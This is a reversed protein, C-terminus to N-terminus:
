NQGGFCNKPRKLTIKYIFYARNTMLPYACDVLVADSGLWDKINRVEIVSRQRYGRLPLFLILIFVM